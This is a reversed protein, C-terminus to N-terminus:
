GHTLGGTDHRSAAPASHVLGPPSQVRAQPGPRPPWTFGDFVQQADRRYAPPIARRPARPWLWDHERPATVRIANRGDAPLRRFTVRSAKRKRDAKRALPTSITSARVITSATPTVRPQREVRVPAPAAATTRASTTATRPGATEARGNSTRRITTPPRSSTKPRCHSRLAIRRALPAM